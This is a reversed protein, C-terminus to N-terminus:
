KYTATYSFKYVGNTLPGGFKGTFTHGKYAGTGRNLKFTGGSVSTTGDQAVTQTGKGKGSLTGKSTFITIKKATVLFSGAQNPNARVTTQYVIAGRGLLKDKFDGSVFLTNGESHTASAYAVGKDAKGKTAAFSVGTCALAIVTLVAAIVRM